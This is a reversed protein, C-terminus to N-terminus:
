GDEGTIHFLRRQMWWPLLERGELYDDM